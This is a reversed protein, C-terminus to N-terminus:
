VFVGARILGAQEAFVELAGSISNNGGWFLDGAFDCQMLVCKTKDNKTICKNGAM